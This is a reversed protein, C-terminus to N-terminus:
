AALQQCHGHVVAQGAAREMMAAFDCCSTAHPDGSLMLARGRRHSRHRCSSLRYLRSASIASGTLLPHDPDDHHERAWTMEHPFMCGEGKAISVSLLDSNMSSGAVSFRDPTVGYRAFIGAYFGLPKHQLIGVAAFRSPLGPLALKRQQDM